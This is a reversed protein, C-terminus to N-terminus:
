PIADPHRLLLHSSSNQTNSNTSSSNTTSSPSFPPLTFPPSNTKSVSGTSKSSGTDAESDTKNDAQVPWDAETTPYSTGFLPITNSSTSQISTVTGTGNTADNTTIIINSSSISIM